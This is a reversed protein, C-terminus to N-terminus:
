FLAIHHRSLQWLSMSSSSTSVATSSCVIRAHVIARVLRRTARPSQPYLGRRPYSNTRYQQYVSRWRKWASRQQQKGPPAEFAPTSRWLKCKVCRANYAMAYSSQSRQHTQKVLFSHMVEDLLNSNKRHM